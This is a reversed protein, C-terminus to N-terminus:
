PSPRVAPEGMHVPPDVHLADPLREARVAELASLEAPQSAALLRDTNPLSTLYSLEGLPPVPQELIAANLARRCALVDGYQRSESALLISQRWLDIAHSTDGHTAFAYAARALV